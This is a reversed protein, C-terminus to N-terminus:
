SLQKVHFLSVFPLYIDTKIQGPFPCKFPTKHPMEAQCNYDLFYFCRIFIFYVNNFSKIDMRNDEIQELGSVEVQLM